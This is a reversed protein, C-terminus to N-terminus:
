SQTSFGTVYPLSLATQQVLTSNARLLAVSDWTGTLFAKRRSEPITISFSRLPTVVVEKELDITISTSPNAVVWEVLVKIDLPAMTVTPVGLSKCNGSFIEAFSEGIVCEFGHRMMAQPAHERSSGCGFNKGVIMIKAHKYRFENLPHPLTSGDAGFRVDQFLYQGMNDFTIEKLFRAPIIRDTDVDDGPIPVATGQVVIRALHISM